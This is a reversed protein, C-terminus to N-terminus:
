PGDEGSSPQVSLIKWTAASKQLRFTWVDAVGADPVEGAPRTRCTATATNIETTVDCPHFALPTWRSRYAAVFRAIAERILADDSLPADHVQRPQSTAPVELRDAPVTAPASAEAVSASSATPQAPVERPSRSLLVYGGGAMLVAVVLIVARWPVRKPRISRIGAALAPLAPHTPCVDHVDRLAARAEEIDHQELASWGAALRSEIDQSAPLRRFSEDM